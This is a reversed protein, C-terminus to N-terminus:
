IIIGPVIEVRDVTCDMGAIVIRWGEEYYISVVTDEGCWQQMTSVAHSLSNALVVYKWDETCFRYVALGRQRKKM